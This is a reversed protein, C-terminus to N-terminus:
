SKAASPTVFGIPRRRPEPSSMLRRLAEIVQRLQLETDAALANHKSALAETKRELEELKKALDKHSALTERLRIFARV